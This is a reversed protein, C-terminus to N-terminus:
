SLLRGASGRVTGKLDTCVRTNKRELNATAEQREGAPKGAATGNDEKGWCCGGAKCVSWSVAWTSGNGPAQPAKHTSWTERCDLEPAQWFPICRDSRQVSIAEQFKWCNRQQFFPYVRGIKIQRRMKGVKRAIALPKPQTHSRSGSPTIPHSTIWTTFLVKHECPRM